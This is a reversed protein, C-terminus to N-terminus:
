RGAEGVGHGGRAWMKGVSERSRAADLATAVAELDDSFLDAYIDLTMAASAHGLMKQVAKVNAGASVSLSAATHRLDHPTAHPIGSSAVAKAFWGSTPHPRPLHEGDEGPWLLGDRGKGECQRALYPVLFEPLPVTRQKHAKPTGVHIRGGAQVANEAVSARKRLLDLDHVRLGIAEGWRLGTYALLLVLGEYEGAAAALSGVQEHTLYLPRKRSTRPLKVGAAPNRAILYDRVADSLICSLVFHTRKVVAAGVPKVDKTGHGLDTIWQQIATPRIDGLAINGWRPEVRLRWTTEMVAYGSPKLHGRKRELWAPGLEGVTMRAHSPAVYEGRMKSVEVTPRNAKQRMIEPTPYTAVLKDVIKAFVEDTLDEPGAVVLKEDVTSQGPMLNLEADLDEGTTQCDPCLADVEIGAVLEVNWGDQGRWRKGCRSCRTIPM